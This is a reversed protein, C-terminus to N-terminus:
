NGYHDFYLELRDLPNEGMLWQYMSVQHLRQGHMSITDLHVPQGDRLYGKIQIQDPRPRPAHRVNYEIKPRANTLAHGLESAVATGIMIAARLRRDRRARIPHPIKM